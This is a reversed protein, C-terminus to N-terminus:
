RRSQLEVGLPAFGTSTTPVEGAFPMALTIRRTRRDLMRIQVEIKEGIAYDNPDADSERVSGVVGPALEVMLRPEKAVVTGEVTNGTRLLAAHDRWPDPLAAKRSLAIKRGGEEIRLVTAQLTEGVKVVDSAKDIRELALESMPILGDIGGLDVFAGFDALRAVVVERVQGVALSALLSARKSRREDELARRHSVVIRRRAADLDLVKLPIVTKVLTDLQTGLAVRVQSAPLFGRIGGVDVLLGGKVVATVTGNVTTGAEKATAVRDWTAQARARVEDPSPRAPKPASEAAAPVEAATPVAETVPVTQEADASVGADPEAAVIDAAIPEQGVLEEPLPEDSVPADAPPEDTPVVDLSASVTVGPEDEAVDELAAALAAEDIELGRAEVPAPPPEPSPHLQDADNM